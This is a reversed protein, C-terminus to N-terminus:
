KKSALSANAELARPRPAEPEVDRGAGRDAELGSLRTRDLQHRDGTGPRDEAEILL